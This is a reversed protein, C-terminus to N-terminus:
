TSGSSLTVRKTWSKTVGHVTARWARGDMPNRLCSYQLPNGNGEGPSRGSGPISGLDGASYASEKSYSGCPSGLGQYKGMNFLHTLTQPYWLFVPFDASLRGGWM